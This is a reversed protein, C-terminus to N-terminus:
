KSFLYPILGGLLGTLASIWVRADRHIPPARLARVHEHTEAAMLMEIQQYALPHLHDNKTHSAIFDLLEPIDRCESIARRVDWDANYQAYEALKQGLPGRTPKPLVSM